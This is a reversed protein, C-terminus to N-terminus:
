FFLFFRLGILFSSVSTLSCFFVAVHVVFNLNDGSRGSLSGRQPAAGEHGNLHRKAALEGEAPRARAVIYRLRLCLCM